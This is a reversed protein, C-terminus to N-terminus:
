KSNANRRIENSKSISDLITLGEFASMKNLNYTKKTYDFFIKSYDGITYKKPEENLKKQDNNARTNYIPKGTSVYRWRNISIDTIKRYTSIEKKSLGFLKIKENYLIQIAYNIIGELLTIPKKKIADYNGNSIDIWNTFPIDYLSTYIYKDKFLNYLEEIKNTSKNRM